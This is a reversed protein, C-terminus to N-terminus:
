LHAGADVLVQSGRQAHSMVAVLNGMTGSPVFLAAEKGTLQAALQELRGVTPDGDRSDDGLPAQAM